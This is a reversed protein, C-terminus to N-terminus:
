LVAAIIITLRENWLYPFQPVSFGFLQNWIMYCSPTLALFSTWVNMAGFNRGKDMNQSCPFSHCQSYLPPEFGCCRPNWVFSILLDRARQSDWTRRACYFESLSTVNTISCLEYHLLWFELELIAPHLGLIGELITQNSWACSCRVSTLRKEEVKNGEEGFSWERSTCINLRYGSM